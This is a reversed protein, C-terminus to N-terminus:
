ASGVSTASTHEGDLQASPRCPRLRRWRLPGARRDRPGRRRRATSVSVHGGAWGTLRGPGHTPESHATEGIVPTAGWRAAIPGTAHFTTDLWCRPPDTPVRRRTGPRRSPSRMGCQDGAHDANHEDRADRGHARAIMDVDRGGRRQGGADDVVLVVAGTGVVVGDPMGALVCSMAVGNKPKLMSSTITPRLAAAHRSGREEAPERLQRRAHETEATGRRHPDVPAGPLEDVPRVQGLGEAVVDRGALTQRQGVLRVHDAGGTGDGDEVEVDHRRGQGVLQLHQVLSRCETHGNAVHLEAVLQVVRRIGRVGLLEGGPGVVRECHVRPDRLEMLVEWTNTDGDHRPVVGIRRRWAHRRTNAAPIPAQEHRYLTFVRDHEVGVPIQRRAHDGACWLRHLRCQVCARLAPLRNGLAIQRLERGADLRPEGLPVDVTRWVLAVAAVEPLVPGMAQRHCPERQRRSGVISDPERHM